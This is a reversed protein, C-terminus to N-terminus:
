PAESASMFRCRYMCKIQNREEHNEVLKVLKVHDLFNVDESGTLRKIFRKEGALKNRRERAVAAGKDSDRVFAKGIMFVILMMM